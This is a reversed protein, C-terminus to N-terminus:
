LLKQDEFYKVIAEKMLRQQEQSNLAPLKKLSEFHPWGEQDTGIFDYYGYPVLVSCVGVHIAELKKDKSLQLSGKGIEQVGILFLVGTIDLEGHTPEFLRIVKKWSAELEFDM